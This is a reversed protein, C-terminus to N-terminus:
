RDLGPGRRRLHERRRRETFVRKSLTPDENEGVLLLKGHFEAGGRDWGNARGDGKGQGIRRGECRRRGVRGVGRLRGRRYLTDALRVRGGAHLSAEFREVEVVVTVDVLGLSRGVLHQARLEVLEIEAVVAFEGRGLEGLGLAQGRRSTRTAILWLLLLAHEVRLAPGAGAQKEACGIRVRRPAICLRRSRGSAEVPKGWVGSM